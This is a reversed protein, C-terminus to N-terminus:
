GAKPPDTDPQKRRFEEAVIEAFATKWSDFAHILRYAAKVLEPPLEKRALRLLFDRDVEPAYRDDSRRPEPLNFAKWISPPLPEDPSEPEPVDEQKRSGALQNVQFRGSARERRIRGFDANRALVQIVSDRNIREM